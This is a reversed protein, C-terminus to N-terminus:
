VSFHTNTLLIVTGGATIIDDYVGSTIYGLRQIASRGGGSGACSSGKYKSGGGGFGGSNIHTALHIVDCSIGAGAVIIKLSEGPVVSLYCSAFGASGGGYMKTPSGWYSGGGGGGWIKVFLLNVNNPVVYIQSSGTYHIPFRTSIIPQCPSGKYGIACNGFVPQSSFLLLVVLLLRFIAMVSKINNNNNSNNNNRYYIRNSNNNSNNNSKNIKNNLSSEDINIIKYM